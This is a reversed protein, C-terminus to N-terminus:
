RKKASKAEEAKQLRELAKARVEEPKLGEFRRYFNMQAAFFERQQPTMSDETLTSPPKQGSPVSTKIGPGGTAGREKAADPSVKKVREVVLKEIAKMDVDGRMYRNALVPDGNFDSVVKQIIADRFEAILPNNKGFRDVMQGIAAITTQDQLQKATKIAENKQKETLDDKLSGVLQLILGLTTQDVKDNSVLEQVTKDFKSEVRAPVQPQQEGAPLRAFVGEVINRALTEASVSDIKTATATTGATTEEGTTIDDEDM